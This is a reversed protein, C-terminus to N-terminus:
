NKSNLRAKLKQNEKKLATIQIELLTIQRHRDDTVLQLNEIRNDDKIGNKHHIIEWTHLCRGLYKAMVLRHEIIEGCKNSMPYFFDNPHLRMRIYGNKKKYRGGKWRWHKEGRKSCNKCCGNYKLRNLSSHAVWRLRQCDPCKVCVYYEKGKLGIDASKIRDGVKM